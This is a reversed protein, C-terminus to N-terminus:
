TGTSCPPRPPASEPAAGAAAAVRVHVARGAGFGHQLAVDLIERRVRADAHRVAGTIRHRLLGPVGVVDRRGAQHEAVVQDGDGRHLVAVVRRAAFALVLGVGVAELRRVLHDHEAAVGAAARLQHLERAAGVQQHVLHDVQRQDLLRHAAFQRRLDGFPQQAV